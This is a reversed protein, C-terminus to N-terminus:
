LRFFFFWVTFTDLLTYPCHTGAYLIPNMCISIKHFNSVMEYLYHSFHIFSHSSHTTTYTFWCIKSQFLHAAIDCLYEWLSLCHHAFIFLMCIENCGFTNVIKKDDTLLFCLKWYAKWLSWFFFEDKLAYFIWNNYNLSQLISYDNNRKNNYM